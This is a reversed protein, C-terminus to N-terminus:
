QLQVQVKCNVSIREKKMYRTSSLSYKKMVFSPFHFYFNLDGFLPDKGGSNLEQEKPYMEMPNLYDTFKCNLTTIIQM